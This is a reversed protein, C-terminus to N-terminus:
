VWWSMGHGSCCRGDEPHFVQGFAVAGGADELAGAQREALALDLHEDTGGAAALRGQELAEVAQDLGIGPLDPQVAPSDVQVALGVQVPQALLHAHDKLIEVQEVVERGEVVNGDGQVMTFFPRGARPRAAPACRVRGPRGPRCPGDRGPGARRRGSAAPPWRGPGPWPGWPAAARRAWRPARGSSIPSTIATIRLRAAWPMVMIMAVWWILRIAVRASSIRNMAPLSM